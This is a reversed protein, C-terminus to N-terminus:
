GKESSDPETSECTSDSTPAYTIVRLSQEVRRLLKSRVDSSWGGVVRSSGTWPATMLSVAFRSSASVWSELQTM